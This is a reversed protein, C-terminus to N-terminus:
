RDMTPARLELQERGGHPDWRRGRDCAATSRVSGLLADVIARPPLEVQILRAVNCAAAPGRFYRDKAACRLACTKRREHRADRRRAASRREAARPASSRSARRLDRVKVTAAPTHPAREGAKRDRRARAARAGAQALFRAARGRVAARLPAAVIPCRSARALLPRSCWRSASRRWQDRLSSIVARGHAWARDRHAASRDELRDISTPRPARACSPLAAATCRRPPRSTRLSASLALLM